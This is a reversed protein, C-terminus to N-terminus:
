IREIRMVRRNAIPSIMASLKDVAEDVVARLVIDVVACLMRETDADTVEGKLAAVVEVEKDDTEVMDADVVVSVEGALLM